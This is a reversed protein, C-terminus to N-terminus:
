DGSFKNKFLDKLKDKQKDLQNSFQAALMEKIQNQSGTSLKQWHTWQSMQKNSDSLPSQIKATLSQKITQLKEQQESTLNTLV